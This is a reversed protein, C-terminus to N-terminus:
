RQNREPMEDLLELAVLRQLAAETEERPMKFESVLLDLDPTHWMTAAYGFRVYVGLDQASLQRSTIVKHHIMVAAPDHVVDYSPMARNGDESNKHDFTPRAASM